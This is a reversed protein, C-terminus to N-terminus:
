VDKAHEFEPLKKLEDYFWSRKDCNPSLEGGVIDLTFEFSMKTVMGLDNDRAEKNFYYEIWCSTQTRNYRAMGVRIYCKKAEVGNKFTKKIELAM